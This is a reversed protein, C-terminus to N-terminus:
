GDKGGKPEEMMRLMARLVREPQDDCLIVYDTMYHWQHLISKYEVALRPVDEWGGIEAWEVLAFKYKKRRREREKDERVNTLDSTGCTATM